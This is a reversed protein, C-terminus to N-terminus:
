EEATRGCDNREDGTSHELVENEEREGKILAPVKIGFEELPFISKARDGRQVGMPEAIGAGIWTKWWRSVTPGRSGALSAVENRNRQGDSYYYARKQEDTQLLISLAEQVKPISTARTWMVLEQLLEVIRDQKDKEREKPLETVKGCKVEPM